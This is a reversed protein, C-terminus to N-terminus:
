RTEGSGHKRRLVALNGEPDAILTEFADSLPPRMWSTMGIWDVLYEAKSAVTYQLSTETKQAELAEPNVKGDLNLTRDHFYGLTGSQVAGIWVADPVNQEVWEVVQFHQHKAGLRYARVNLFVALACAAFLASSALARLGRARVSVSLKVVLAAWLLACLPSLVLFYRSMFHGAGFYLGYFASFIGLVILGFSVLAWRRDGGRRGYKVLLVVVGLAGLSTAALVVPNSELVRPVPLVMTLYEFIEVPVASLNEGLKAHLSEAQGSIPVISGFRQHNFILWPLAVITVMLGTATIELLRHKFVRAGGPFVGALHSVGLAACVLVVDNRAWFAAGLLVGLGIFAVVRPRESKAEVLSTGYVLTAALLLVYLGSELCNMTHPLVIPSGYWIAAALVAVREVHPQEAFVRKALRYVLWATLTSLMLELGLVARVGEVKDSGVLKFCLSWLFTALPQTGNTPLTGAATSMGHGLALNRAITLMLYGDETPFQRLLRGGPDFLPVLRALFGVAFLLAACPLSVGLRVTRSETDM